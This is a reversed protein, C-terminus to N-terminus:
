RSSSMSRRLAEWGTGQLGMLLDNFLTFTVAEPERDAVTYSWGAKRAPDEM